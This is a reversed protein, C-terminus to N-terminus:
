RGRAALRAAQRPVLRVKRPAAMWMCFASLLSLGVCIVFGITYSGTYDFILGTVWPGIGAGFNAGIMTLAFITAFRRGAFIDAPLAGTIASLGYGLAGQSIVMAYVLWRAPYDQLAILMVYCLAFGICALTWAWERGIRDSLAGVAIQGAIGFLGVLGLALAAEGAGIGVDLLYRTQHVQVTYWVFLASAAGATMWWFRGTRIAKGPTWDTEAWARDVVPDIAVEKEDSAPDQAPGQRRGDPVDGIDEPSRRQLLLNLPIIIAVILVAFSLCAIRWGYAAIVFQAAPLLVMAGLGVGGFAIGIALGRNRVFWNPLFMSHGIYSMGISGGVVLVGLSAYLGIPTEIFVAAAFGCAVIAASLPIVLRPGTRDMLMGVIPAIGTAAIFGITFAAATEGRQWGFEDLIPPFLLSFATRANVAVAMTVFAVAVVVWGYFVPLRLPLKSPSM